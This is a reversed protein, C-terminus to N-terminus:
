NIACHISVTVARDEHALMRATGDGQHV